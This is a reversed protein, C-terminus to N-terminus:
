PCGKCFGACFGFFLDSKDQPNWFFKLGDNEAVVPRAKEVFSKNLSILGRKSISIAPTRRQRRKADIEVLKM